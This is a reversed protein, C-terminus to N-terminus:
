LVFCMVSALMWGCARSDLGVKATRKVNCVANVNCLVPLGLSILHPPAFFLSYHNSSPLFLLPPAPSICPSHFIASYFPSCILYPSSPLPFLSIPLPPICIHPHTPLKHNLRICDPGATLWVSRLQSLSPPLSPSISLSVNVKGQLSHPATKDSWWGGRYVKEGRWRWKGSEGGVKGVAGEPRLKGFTNHLWSWTSNFYSDWFLHINIKNCQIVSQYSMKSKRM